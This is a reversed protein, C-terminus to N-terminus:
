QQAQMLSDIARGKGPGTGDWKKLIRKLVHLGRHRPRGVPRKGESMGVLVAMYPLFKNVLACSDRM